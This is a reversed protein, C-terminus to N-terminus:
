VLVRDASIVPREFLRRRGERTLCVAALNVDCGWFDVVVGEGITIMGLDRLSFLHNALTYKFLPEQKLMATIQRYQRSEEHRSLALLTNELSLQLSTM